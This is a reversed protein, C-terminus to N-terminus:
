GMWIRGLSRLVWWGFACAALCGFLHVLGHLVFEAYQARQLLSFGEGTFASFTTLAGLFGYGIGARLVQSWGGWLEVSALLAGALLGGILNALLTGLPLHPWIPNFQVSLAFRLWAGLVAGLAIATLV